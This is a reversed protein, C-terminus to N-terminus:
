GHLKWMQLIFTAVAILGIVLYGVEELDLRM